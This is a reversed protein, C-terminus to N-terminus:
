LGGEGGSGVFFEALGKGPAKVLNFLVDVLPNRGPMRRVQLRQVLLPFPFERHDLAELVRARAQRVCEIFSADARVEGRLVVLNVFDGIVASFRADTRCTVPAGVMIDTAGTWRHLLCQLATCLVVYPTAGVTRGLAAIGSTLEPELRFPVSDGEFCEDSGRPRDTPLDLVPLPERLRGRWYNWLREGEAGQMARLQAEVFEGYTAASPALGASRGTEEAEYLARLDGLFVPFSAADFAIHHFVCHLIQSGDQLEFLRTRF